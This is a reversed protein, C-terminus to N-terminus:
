WIRINKRELIRKLEAEKSKFYEDELAYDFGNRQYLEELDKSIYSMKDIIAYDIHDSIQDILDNTNMPLIPGIHVYTKIKRSHFNKLTYIREDITSSYPEIIQRVSDDDTTITIGVEANHMKSIIDLDRNVLDSKTLIITKFNYKQLLQLCERTIRYKHELPQYPDTLPSLFVSGRKTNKLEAELVKAANMKPDVFDGWFDNDHSDDDKEIFQERFVYCYKCAHQCGIYPDLTYDVGPGTLESAESFIPKGLVSKVELEEIKLLIV